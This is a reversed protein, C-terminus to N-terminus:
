LDEGVDIWLGRELVRTGGHGFDALTAFLISGAKPSGFCLTEPWSPKPSM